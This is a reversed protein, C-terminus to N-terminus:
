TFFPLSTFPTDVLWPLGPVAPLWWSAPSLGPIPEGESGEPRRLPFLGAETKQGGSGQSFLNRKNSATWNIPSQKPLGQSNM